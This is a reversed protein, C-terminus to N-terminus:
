TQKREAGIPSWHLTDTQSNFLTGVEVKIKQGVEKLLNDEIMM